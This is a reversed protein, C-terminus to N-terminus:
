WARERRSAREIVSVVREQEQELMGHFLPLLLSRRTIRETVPLPAHSCGSFAPELHAAMIGRRPHIDRDEMQMMLHNRDIPLDDPLVVWFSQHNTSGYPPDSPLELGPIHLLLERYRAALRRREAVIADLKQLQVLGIAAQIDTLRFNFGLELYQEIVV